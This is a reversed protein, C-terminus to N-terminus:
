IGAQALEREANLVAHDSAPVSAPLQTKAETIAAFFDHLDKASTRWGGPGWTCRLRQGAVGVTRWRHLSSIHPRRPCNSIKAAIAAAERLSILQSSESIASM